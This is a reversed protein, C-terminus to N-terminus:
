SGSRHSGSCPARSSASCSWCCPHCCWTSQGWPNSLPKHGHGYEQPSPHWAPPTFSCHIPSPGSHGYSGFLGVPPIKFIVDPVPKQIDGVFAKPCKLASRIGSTPTMEHAILALHQFILMIGTQSFLNRWWPWTNFYWCSPQKRFWNGDLSWLFFTQNPSCLKNHNQETPLQEADHAVSKKQITYILKCM